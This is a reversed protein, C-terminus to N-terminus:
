FDVDYDVTTYEPVVVEEAEANVVMAPAGVVTAVSLMLALFRKEHEREKSKESGNPVDCDPFAGTEHASLGIIVFSFARALAKSHVTMKM